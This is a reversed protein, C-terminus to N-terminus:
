IGRRKFRCGAMGIFDDHCRTLGDDVGWGYGVDRRRYVLQHKKVLEIKGCIVMGDPYAYLGSREIHLRMGSSFVRCPRAALRTGLAIIVNVAVLSHDTTGGAMAFIEGNHYESKYEAVEEMALYEAPTFITKIKRM